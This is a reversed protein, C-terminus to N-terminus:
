PQVSSKENHAARTPIICENANGTYTYERIIQTAAALLIGYISDTAIPTDMQLCPRNM